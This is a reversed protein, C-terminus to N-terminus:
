PGSGRPPSARTVQRLHLRETRLNHIDALPAPQRLAVQAVDVQAQGRVPSAVGFAGFGLQAVGDLQLRRTREGPLADRQQRSVQGIVPAGVLHHFEELRGLRLRPQGGEVPDVAHSRPVAYEAEDLREVQTAQM